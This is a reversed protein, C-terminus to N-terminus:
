GPTPRSTPSRGPWGLSPVSPALATLAEVAGAVPVALEPNEVIPALTGDYDCAVVARGPAALLAAFASRIGAAHHSDPSM